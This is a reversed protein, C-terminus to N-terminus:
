TRDQCFKLIAPADRHIEQLRSLTGSMIIEMAATTPSEGQEMLSVVRVTSATDGVVQLLAVEKTMHPILLTCLDRLDDAVVPTPLVLLAAMIIPKM